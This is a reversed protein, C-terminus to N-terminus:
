SKLIQLMVMKYWYVWKLRNYRGVFKKQSIFAGVKQWIKGELLCVYINKGFCIYKQRM